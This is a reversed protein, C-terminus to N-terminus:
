EEIAAALRFIEERNDPSLKREENNNPALNM